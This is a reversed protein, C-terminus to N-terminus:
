RQVKGIIKKAYNVVEVPDKDLLIGLDIEDATWASIDKLIQLHAKPNTSSLVFLYHIGVNEEFRIKKKNMLLSVSLRNAGEEPRAHAIAIKNKLVIYAGHEEVLDIM